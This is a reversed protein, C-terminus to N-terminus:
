TVSNGTTGGVITWLDYDFTVTFEQIQDTAEWAM